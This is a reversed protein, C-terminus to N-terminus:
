ALIENVNREITQSIKLMPVDNDDGSFPDEIEEAILELSALVYFIFMVATFIILALVVLGRWLKGSRPTDEIPQTRSKLPSKGSSSGGKSPAPPDQTVSSM